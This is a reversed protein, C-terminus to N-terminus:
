QNQCKGIRVSEVGKGRRIHAFVIVQAHTHVNICTCPLLNKWLPVIITIFSRVLSRFSRILM